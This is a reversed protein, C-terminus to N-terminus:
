LWYIPRHTHIHISIFRLSKNISMMERREGETRSIYKYIGYTYVHICMIYIYIYVHYVCVLINLFICPYIDRQIYLQIYLYVWICYKTTPLHALGLNLYIWPSQNSTVHEELRFLMIDLWWDGIASDVEQSFFFNWKDNALQFSYLQSSGAPKPRELLSHGM